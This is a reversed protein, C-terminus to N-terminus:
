LDEMWSKKVWGITTNDTKLGLVYSPLGSCPLVFQVFEEALTEGNSLIYRYLPMGSDGYTGIAERRIEDTCDNYRGLFHQAMTPLDREEFDEYKMLVM